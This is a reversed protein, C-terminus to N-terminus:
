TLSRSSVKSQSLDLQQSWTPIDKRKAERRQLDEKRIFFFIQCFNIKHFFESYTCVESLAKRNSVTDETQQPLACNRYIDVCGGSEGMSQQASELLRVVSINCFLSLSGQLISSHVGLRWIGIHSPVFLFFLFVYWYILVARLIWKLNGLSANKRPLRFSQHSGANKYHRSSNTMIILHTCVHATVPTWELWTRPWTAVAYAPRLTGRQTKALPQLLFSSAPLVPQEWPCSLTWDWDLIRSPLYCPWPGVVHKM